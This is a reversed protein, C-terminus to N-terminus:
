LIAQLVSRETAEGWGGGCAWRHHCVVVWGDIMCLCLGVVWGDIMCLCLDVVWGDIMCLCLDVVWGDIMCLCLAAAAREGM